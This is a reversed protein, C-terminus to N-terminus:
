QHSLESPMSCPESFHLNKADIYVELAWALKCLLCICTFIGYIQICMSKISYMLSHSCVYSMHRRAHMYVKEMDKCHAQTMFFNTAHLALLISQKKM